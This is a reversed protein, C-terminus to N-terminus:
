RRRRWGFCLSGLALIGVTAPEPAVGIDGVAVDNVLVGMERVITKDWGSGNWDYLSVHGLQTVAVVEDIGDSDFDYTDLGRLPGELFASGIINETYGAGNYAFYELIGGDTGVIVDPISDGDINGIAVAKNNQFNNHIHTEGPQGGAPTSFDFRVIGGNSAVGVSDLVGDGDIDVHNAAHTYAYTATRVWNEAYGGGNWEMGVVVGADQFIGVEPVGNGNSDSVTVGYNNTFTTKVDATDWGSGTWQAKRVVGSSGVVLDMQSNNDIDGAALSLGNFSPSDVVFSWALSSPSDAYVRVLANEAAVYADNVGNGMADAVIIRRAARGTSADVSVWSSGNYFLASIVGDERAVNITVASFVPSALAVVCCLTLITRQM